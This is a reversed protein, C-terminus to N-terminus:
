KLNMKRLIEQFRADGRLNTFRPEIALWTMRLEHREFCKQLAAAAEDTRDNEAYNMALSYLAKTDTQAQAELERLLTEAKETQGNKQYAAALLSLWPAPRQNPNKELAKEGTEIVQPYFGKHYLFTGYARVALFNEKNERLFEASERLAEDYEGRGELIPFRASLIIDSVPDLQYATKIAALAEDLRGTISLTQALRQHAAASQPNLQAARRLDSEAGAWDWDANRKLWGRILYGEALNADLAFAKETASKAKAFLELSNPYSARAASSAFGEALGAYALAFTPALTVAKQFEDIAKEERKDVSRKELIMKGRQYAQMAEVNENPPVDSTKAAPRDGRWFFAFSTVFLLSVLFISALIWRFPRKETSSETQDTVPSRTQDAVVPSETIIVEPLKDNASIERVAATFRYGHRAVTQILEKNVLTKRLLSVTYNINGEEVFTQKWIKELLEDRSVIEGRKEVLLILTELAKPSISVLRDGRWLSPSEPDLRFEEFEYFHKTKHSMRSGLLFSVVEM